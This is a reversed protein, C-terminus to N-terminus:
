FSLSDIRNGSIDLIHCTKSLCSAIDNAGSSGIQRSSIYLEQLSKCCKLGDRLNDSNVSNGMLSSIMKLSISSM